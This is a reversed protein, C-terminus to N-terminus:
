FDDAFPGSMADHYEEERDLERMEREMEKESIDGRRYDRLIERRAKETERNM